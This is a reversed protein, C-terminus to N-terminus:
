FHSAGHVGRCLPPLIHFQLIISRVATVYRYTFKLAGDLSVNLAAVAEVPLPNLFPRIDSMELRRRDNNLPVVPVPDHVGIKVRRGRLVRVPPGERFFAVHQDVQLAIHAASLSDVTFTQPLMHPEETPPGAM